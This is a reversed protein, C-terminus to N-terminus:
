EEEGVSFFDGGKAATKVEFRRRGPATEDVSGL